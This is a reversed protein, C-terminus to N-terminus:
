VGFIDRTNIGFKEEMARMTRRSPLRYGQMYAYVSKVSCGLEKAVDAGRLHNDICWKKFPTKCTREEM